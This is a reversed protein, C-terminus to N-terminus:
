HSGFVRKVVADEHRAVGTRVFDITLKTSCSCCGADNKIVVRDGLDFAGIITALGSFGAPPSRPTV